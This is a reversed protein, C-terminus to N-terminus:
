LSVVTLVDPLVWESLAAYSATTLHIEGEIKVSDALERISRNRSLSARQALRNQTAAAIAVREAQQVATM